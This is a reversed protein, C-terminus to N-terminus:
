FSFQWQITFLNNDLERKAGGATEGPEYNADYSFTIRTASDWYYHGVLSLVTLEDDGSVSPDNQRNPDFRQYRGALGFKTGLAQSLWVYWGDKIKGKDHGFMYEGRLATGGIPLLDLFWQADVGKRMRDHHISPKAASAGTIVVEGSDITNNTNADSWVLQGSNAPAGPDVFEGFYGSFGLYFTSYNFKVRAIIDKQKTPDMWEFPKVGDGKIGTGQWLGLNFQVYEPLAVNLNVGRDREGDFFEKEIRSREPFDRKSSSYEIEYGFPWNQQGVRLNLDIPFNTVPVVFLWEAYAELVEVPTTRGSNLYLRYRSSKNDYELKMRARRFYALQNKNNTKTLPIGEFSSISTQDLDLRLQIYGGAKFKKLSSVDGELLSMREDAGDLRSQVEEMEEETVPEAKSVISSLVVVVFLMLLIKLSNPKM